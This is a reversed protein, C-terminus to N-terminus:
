YSFGSFCEPARQHHNMKINIKRVVTLTRVTSSNEGTASGKYCATLPFGEWPDTIPLEHSFHSDPIILGKCSHPCGRMKLGASVKGLFHPPSATFHISTSTPRSPHSPQNGVGMGLYMSNKTTAFSHKQALNSVRHKCTIQWLFGIQDTICTAKSM